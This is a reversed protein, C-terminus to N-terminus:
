NNATPLNLLVDFKIKQLLVKKYKTHGNVVVPVLDVMLKSEFKCKEDDAEGSSDDGETYYCKLDRCM